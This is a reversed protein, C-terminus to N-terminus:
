HANRRWAYWSTARVWKGDIGGNQFLLFKDEVSAEKFISIKFNCM